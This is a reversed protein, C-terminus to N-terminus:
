KCMKGKKGNKPRFIWFLTLIITKLCKKTWATISGLKVPVLPRLIFRHQVNYNRFHVSTAQLNPIPIRIGYVPFPFPIRLIIHSTALSYCLTPLFALTLHRYQLNYIKLGDSVCYLAMCPYPQSEMMKGRNASYSSMCLLFHGVLM